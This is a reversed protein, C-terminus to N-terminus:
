KGKENIFCSVKNLHVRIDKVTQVFCQDICVYKEYHALVKNYKM